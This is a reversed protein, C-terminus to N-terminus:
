AVKYNEESTLLKWIVRSNKNALAVCARNFGRREILEKLWKTRESEDKNVKVKLLVSRAGHILLKRLYSDGRKSIGLLKEKGGSSSQRPVLGLWASMQRGNDFLNANGISAVMATATIPGVGPIKMIKQCSESQKSQFKIKTEYNAIKEDHSCLEEYLGNFLDRSQSTLSNEADEIIDSFQTRLKEIGQPIILGYENLLGRMENVLATRSRVLRERVRHLCLSDQQETTKIAVFRMNPRMAAEVIAEADNADNKNSKVFPKVFQPSILKVDHGMERFKRAWFHSGGCAEMAVICKPLNALFVILQQRNLKRKLVTKGNLDSGHLQFVSKALDIGLVSVEKM